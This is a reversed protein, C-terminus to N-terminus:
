PVEKCCGGPCRFWTVEDDDQWKWRVTGPVTLKDDPFPIFKVCHYTTKSGDASTHKTRWRGPYTDTLACQLEMSTPVGACNGTGTTGAEYYCAEIKNYETGDTTSFSMKTEYASGSIAVDAVPTWGGKFAATDRKALAPDPILVGEVIPNTPKPAGTMNPDALFQADNWLEVQKVTGSVNLKSNSMQKVMDAAPRPVFGRPGVYCQAKDCPLIAYQVWGASRNDFGWRVVGPLDAASIPNGDPKNPRRQVILDHAQSADPNLCDADKGAPMMQADWQVPNKPSLVLCYFGAQDIGLPKYAGEARVLAFATPATPWQAEAVATGVFIAFVAGYSPDGSTGEVFRQCDNYEPLADRGGTFAEIKLKEEASWDWFHPCREVVTTPTPGGGVGPGGPPPILSTGILTGAALALLAVIVITVNKRM